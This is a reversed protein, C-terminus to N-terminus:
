IRGGYGASHRAVDAAALKVGAADKTYLDYRNVQGDPFRINAAGGDLPCHVRNTM